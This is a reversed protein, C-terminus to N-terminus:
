FVSLQSQVMNSQQKRLKKVVCDSTTSAPPFLGEPSATPSQDLNMFGVEFLFKSKLFFSPRKGFMQLHAEGGFWSRKGCLM